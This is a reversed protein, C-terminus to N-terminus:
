QYWGVTRSERCVVHGIVAGVVCDSETCSFTDMVSDGEMCSATCVCLILRDSM